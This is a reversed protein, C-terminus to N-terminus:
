RDLPRDTSHHHARRARRHPAGRRRCVRLIRPSSPRIPAVVPRLAAHRERLRYAGAGPVRRTHEPEVIQTADCGSTAGIEAPEVGAVESQPSPPRRVIPAARSRGRRARRAGDRLDLARRHARRPVGVGAIVAVVPVFYVAVAGRAAGVRVILAGLAVFALGTGLAGLAVVAFASSWAFSSSTFGVIAFPVTMVFAMLQSWLIIPLTGYEQQLPVSVNTAFGYCTVAVLVLLVGSTSSSSGDDLAPWM